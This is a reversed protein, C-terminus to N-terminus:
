HPSSLRLYILLVAIAISWLVTTIGVAILMFTKLPLDLIWDSFTQDDNM